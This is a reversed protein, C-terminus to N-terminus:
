NIKNTNIRNVLVYTNTQFSKFHRKLHAAPKDPDYNHVTPESIVHKM